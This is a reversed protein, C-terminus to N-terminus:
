DPDTNKPFYEWTRNRMLSDGMKRLIKKSHWRYWMWYNKQPCLYFSLNVCQYENESKCKSELIIFVSIIHWTCINKFVTVCVKLLAHWCKTHQGNYKVKIFIILSISTLSFMKNRYIHNAESKWKERSLKIYLMANM